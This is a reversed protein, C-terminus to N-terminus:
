SSPAPRGERNFRPRLALEKEPRRDDGANRGIIMEVKEMIMEPTILTLCEYHGFLCRANGKVSCPRCPMDLEVTYRPDQGYGCSDIYPHTSGWVSVAPTGVLSAIRLIPTDMTVVADLMRLLQMQEELDVREVVSVINDARREMGEGFQREYEGTGFIFVKECRRALKEILRASQPIPYFKGKHKSMPAVGVWTGRKDGALISVVPPTSSPKRRRVPQPMEFPYGLKEFVDRCRKPTSDLQVLVKRFKRTMLEKQLLGRDIAASPVGMILRRLFRSRRSGELDAACTFRAKRMDVSLRRLGSLGRYRAADIFLYELDEVTSFLPAFTTVTLVTVRLDPYAKRLGRLAHVSMAAEGIDTLCIALVNGATAAPQINRLAKAM